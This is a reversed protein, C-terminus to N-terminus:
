CRHVVVFLEGPPTLWRGCFPRRREQKTGSFINEDVEGLAALIPDNVNMFRLFLSYSVVFTTKRRQLMVIDSFKFNLTMYM